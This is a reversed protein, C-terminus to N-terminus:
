KLQELSKKYGALGRKYDEIREEYLAIEGELFSGLRDLALAKDSTYYARESDKSIKAGNIWVFSPTEKEIEIETIQNLSFIVEYYKMIGKKKIEQHRM